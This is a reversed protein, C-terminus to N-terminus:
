IGCSFFYKVSIVSTIKKRKVKKLRLGFFFNPPFQSNFFQRFPFPSYHHLILLPLSLIFLFIPSLLRLFYQFIDFFILSLLYSAGSEPNQIIKGAPFSFIEKLLIKLLQVKKHYTQRPKGDKELKVREIRFCQLCRSM